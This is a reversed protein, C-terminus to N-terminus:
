LCYINWILFHLELDWEVEFFLILIELTHFQLLNVYAKRHLVKAKLMNNILFGTRLIQKNQLARGFIQLLQSSGHLYLENLFYSLDIPKIFSQLSLLSLTVLDLNLHLDKLIVRLHLSLHNPRLRHPLLLPLRRNIVNVIKLLIIGFNKSHLFYMFHEPLLFANQSAQSM